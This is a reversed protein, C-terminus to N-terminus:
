NSCAVRDVTELYEMDIEAVLSRQILDLTVVVRAENKQRLLIAEIGEMPGSKVRVRQGVALYPHPRAHCHSLGARLAEIEYDPLPIPACMNGVISLVGPTELVGRRRLRDTRVFLYNPFLPLEATVKRRNSWHHEEAYLPLFNELQRQTFYQSVRKEHHSKVYVAFWAQGSALVETGQSDM